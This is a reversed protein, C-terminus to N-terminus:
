IIDLELCNMLLCLILYSGCSRFICLSFSRHLFKTEKFETVRVSLILFFLYSFVKFIYPAM